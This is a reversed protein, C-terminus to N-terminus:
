YAQAEPLFVTMLTPLPLQKEPGREGKPNLQRYVVADGDMRVIEIRLRWGTGHPSFTARFDEAGLIRTAGYPRGDLDACTYRVEGGVEREVLVSMVWREGPAPALFGAPGMAPGAPTAEAAHRPQLAAPKPLNLCIRALEEVGPFRGLDFRDSWKEGGPGWLRGQFTPGSVHLAQFRYPDKGVEFSQSVELRGDRVAVTADAGFRQLLAPSLAGEAPPLVRLVDAREHRATGEVPEALAGRHAATSLFLELDARTPHEDLPLLLSVRVPQGRTLLSRMSVVRIGQPDAELEFLHETTEIQGRLLLANGDLRAPIKREALQGALSELYRMRVSLARAIRLEFAEPSEADYFSLPELASLPPTLFRAHDHGEVQFRGSAIRVQTGPAVVRGTKFPWEGELVQRAPDLAPSLGFANLKRLAIQNLRERSIKSTPEAPM